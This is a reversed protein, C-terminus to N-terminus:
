VIYESQKASAPALAMPSCPPRNLAKWEIFPLVSFSLLDGAGLSLLASTSDKYLCSSYSRIGLASTSLKKQSLSSFLM